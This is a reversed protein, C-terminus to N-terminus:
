LCHKLAQLCKRTGCGALLLTHANCAGCERRSVCLQSAKAEWANIPLVYISLRGEKYEEEEVDVEEEKDEEKKTRRESRM